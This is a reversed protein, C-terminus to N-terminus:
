MRMLQEECQGVPMDNLALGEKFVQAQLALHRQSLLCGALSWNELNWFSVSPPQQLRLRQVPEWYAGPRLMYQKICVAGLLDLQAINAAHRLLASCCAQQTISAAEGPM